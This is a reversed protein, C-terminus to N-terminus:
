DGAPCRAAAVWALTNHAHHLAAHLLQAGATADATWAACATIAAVPDGEHEGDVVRLRGADCEADLYRQLQALAQPLRAALTTLAGLVTYVDAPEALGAAGPLTAHNLARVAEAAADACGAAGTASM